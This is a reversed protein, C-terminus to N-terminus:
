YGIGLSSGGIGRSNPRPTTRGNQHQQLPLFQRRQASNVRPLPNLVPLPPNFIQQQLNQQQQQLYQQQQQVQANPQPVFPIPTVGRTFLPINPPQSSFDLQPYNIRNRKPPHTIEQDQDLEEYSNSNSNHLSPTPFRQIAASTPRSPSQFNFQSFTFSNTFYFSSM